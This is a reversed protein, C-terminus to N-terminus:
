RKEIKIEYSNNKVKGKYKKDIWMRLVKNKNNIKGSYIIKGNNSTTEVESLTIEKDIFCKIYNDDINSNIKYIVINYLTDNDGTINLKLSSNNFSSKGIKNSLKKINNIKLEDTRNNSFSIYSTTIENVKPELINTEFIFYTLLFVLIGLISCIFIRKFYLKKKNINKM